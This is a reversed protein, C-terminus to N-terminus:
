DERRSVRRSHYLKEIDKCGLILQYAGDDEDRACISTIIYVWGVDFKPTYLYQSTTDSGAHKEVHLNFIHFQNVRITELSALTIINREYEEKTMEPAM